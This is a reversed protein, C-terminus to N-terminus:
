NELGLAERNDKGFWRKKFVGKETQIATEEDGWDAAHVIEKMSRVSGPFKQSLFPELFQLGVEVCDEGDEATYLSDVLGINMAKAPYIRTSAGLMGIAQQRGIISTLRTAGGWGPAAGIKAHVSQVFPVDVDGEAERMIRFDTSTILEMGGGLAPANLVCVSIASSARLRNLADTMFSCMEAGIEPTNVLGKAMNLDLGSSFFKGTGAMIIATPEHQELSDIHEALQLMMNGSISGRKDENEIRLVVVHGNRKTTHESDPTLKIASLSLSGSTTSPSLWDRIKALFPAHADTLLPQARASISVVASVSLKRSAHM